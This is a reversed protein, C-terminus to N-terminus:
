TSTWSISGTYHQWGMSSEPAVSLNERRHPKRPRICAAHDKSVSTDFWMPLHLFGLRSRCSGLFILLRFTFESCETRHGPCCLSNILALAVHIVTPQAKQRPHRWCHFRVSLELDRTQRIYQFCLCAERVTFIVPGKFCIESNRTTFNNNNNYNSSIINTLLV